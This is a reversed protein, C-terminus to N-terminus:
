AARCTTWRAWWARGRLRRSSTDMASGRRARRRSLWSGARTSTCPRDTRRSPWGSPTSSRRARRSTWCCSESSSLRTSTTATLGRSSLSATLRRSGRRSLRAGTTSPCSTCRACPSSSLTWMLLTGLRWCCMERMSRATRRRLAVGSCTTWSLRAMMTRCSPSAARCGASTPSTSRTPRWTGRRLSSPHRSCLHPCMYATRTWWRSTWSAECFTAPTSSRTSM